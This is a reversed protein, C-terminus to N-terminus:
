RMRRLRLGAVGGILAFPLLATLMPSLNLLLGWQVSMQDFFCLVIGVFTGIAVRYDAGVDRTPGFVFSLALLAMALTNLPVGLKRWLAIAYRDADQGSQQLVEIYRRLDPISLSGPPAGLLGVQDARLFDALPLSAVQQTFIAGDMIRREVVERLQWRGDAQLVATRAQIATQLRGAPDFTFLDLDAAIGQGLMRGAHIFTPGRRVWFGEGPLTVGLDAAVEQVRMRRARAEMAPVVLEALLGAALMLLLSAGLVAACIRPASVGAAEMAVIEGRDNFLGLAVIGGLLTAVPLLDLLRGPLTLLVYLLARGLGVDEMQAILEFLSLLVALVGLILLCAGLFTRGLYRDLINM